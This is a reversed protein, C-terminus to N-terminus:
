GCASPRRAPGEVRGGGISRGEGLRQGYATHATHPGLYGALGSVDGAESTLEALLGAAGSGLLTRRRGAYWAEAAPGEGHLAVIAAVAEECLHCGPRSYVVVDTM